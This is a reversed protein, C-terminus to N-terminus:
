FNGVKIKSAKTPNLWHRIAENLEDIDFKPRINFIEPFPGYFSKMHPYLEELQFRQVWDESRQMTRMLSYFWTENKRAVEIRTFGKRLLDEYSQIIASIAAETKEPPIGVYTGFYGNRNYGYEIRNLGYALNKDTRLSRYFRSTLGDHSHALAFRVMEYEPTNERPAEFLVRVRTEEIPLIHNYYSGKSIPRPDTPLVIEVGRRIPLKSFYKQIDSLECDGAIVMVMNEAIIHKTYFDEVDHVSITNLSEMTGLSDKNWNTGNALVNNVFNHEHREPKSNAKKIESYIIQKEKSLLQETVYMESIAHYFHKYMKPLHSKIAIESKVAMWTCSTSANRFGGVSEMIGWFEEKHVKRSGAALLHEALHALGEKGPVDYISGARIMLHARIPAHRKQYLVVKLGNELVTEKRSAAFDKLSYKKRM